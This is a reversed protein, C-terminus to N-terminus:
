ALGIFRDFVGVALLVRFVVFILAAIITTIIFKRRLNTKVPAGPETGAVTDGDEWQGRIGFPLVTFLVVWWIVFFVALSTIPGM